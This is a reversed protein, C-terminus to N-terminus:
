VRMWDSIRAHRLLGRRWLGVTREIWQASICAGWWGDTEVPERLRETNSPALWFARSSRQLEDGQDAQSGLLQRLYFPQFFRRAPRCIRSIPPYRSM